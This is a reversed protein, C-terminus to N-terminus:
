APSSGPDDHSLTAVAAAGAAVAAVASLAAAGGMIRGVRGRRIADTLIVADAADSALSAVLWTRLGSREGTRAAALTGAGLALDRAGTMRVLWDVRKSTVSDVGLPRPVLLPRLLMVTGLGVRVAGLSAGLRSGRYPLPVKVELPCGFSADTRRKPPIKGCTLVNSRVVRDSM